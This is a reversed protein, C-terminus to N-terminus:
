LRFKIPAKQREAILREMLKEPLAPLTLPMSLSLTHHILDQRLVFRQQKVWLTFIAASASEYAASPCLGM